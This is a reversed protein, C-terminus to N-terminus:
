ELGRERFKKKLSDIRDLVGAMFGKVFIKFEDDTQGERMEAAQARVLEIDAEMKQEELHRLKTTPPTEVNGGGPRWFM